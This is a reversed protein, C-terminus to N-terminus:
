FRSRKVDERESTRREMAEDLGYWRLSESRREIM